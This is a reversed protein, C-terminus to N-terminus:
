IRHFKSIKVVSAEFIIACPSKCQGSRENPTNCAMNPWFNSFSVKEPESVRSNSNQGRSIQSQLAFVFNKSLAGLLKLHKMMKKLSFQNLFIHLVGYCLSSKTNSFITLSLGRCTYSSNGWQLPRWLDSYHQALNVQSVKHWCINPEKENKRKDFSRDALNLM